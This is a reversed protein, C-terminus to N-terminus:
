TRIRPNLLEPSALKTHHIIDIYWSPEPLQPRRREKSMVLLAIGEHFPFTNLDIKKREGNENAKLLEWSLEVAAARYGSIFRTDVFRTNLNLDAPLVKLM